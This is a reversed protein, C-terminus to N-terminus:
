KSKLDEVLTKWNNLTNEVGYKRVSEKANLALRERLGEDAMLQKVREVMEPLSDVVFGNVGNEVVDELTLFNSSKMGVVVSCFQQAELITMPFGEYLSTTLFIPAKRYYPVPNCHGEFSVRGLGKAQAIERYVAMDDGDGVILLKWEACSGDKEIEGWVDLVRTLRKSKEEMRAVVLVIKEKSIGSIDDSGFSVPNPLASAHSADYGSLRLFATVLKPSLCTVHDVGITYMAYKGKIKKELLSHPLFLLLFRFLLSKFDRMSKSLLFKRILFRLDLTVLEYGPCSHYTFIHKFDFANEERIRKLSPFVVRSVKKAMINNFVIDIKYKAIIETMRADFEDLRVHWTDSDPDCPDDGLFYVRYCKWGLFDSFKSSLISVVREIGGNQPVCDKDTLILVRMNVCDTM